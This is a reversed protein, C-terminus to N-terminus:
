RIYGTIEIYLKTVIIGCKVFDYQSIPSRVCLYVFVYECVTLCVYQRRLVSIVSLTIVLMVIVESALNIVM